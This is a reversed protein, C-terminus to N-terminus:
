PTPLWAPRPPRAGEGPAGVFLGLTILTAIASGAALDQAARGFVEAFRFSGLTSWMLFLGLLFGADGVRNVIFAKSAADSASKREYWFGILLFSCVGVAEWGVFMLLYNNALVLILMIVASLPDVLFGVPVQFNGAVVWPYLDLDLTQGAFVQIAILLAVLFSLGAAPIAVWHARDRIHTRGFLGNFIVGVLPFGPGLWILHMM